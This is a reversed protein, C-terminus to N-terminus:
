ENGKGKKQAYLFGTLARRSSHEYRPHRILLNERKGLEHLQTYVQNLNENGIIKRRHVHHAGNHEYLEFPVWQIVATTKARHLARKIRSQTLYSWPCVFDFFAIIHIPTQARSKM